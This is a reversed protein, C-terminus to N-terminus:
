LSILISVMSDCHCHHKNCLQQKRKKKKKLNMKKITFEILIMNMIVNFKYYYPWHNTYM